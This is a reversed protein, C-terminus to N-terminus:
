RSPASPQKQRDAHAHANARAHAHARASAGASATASLLRLQYNSGSLHPEPYHLFPHRAPAHLAKSASVRIHGIVELEIEGL